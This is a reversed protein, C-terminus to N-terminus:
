RPYRRVVDGWEYAEEEDYDYDYDYTPRDREFRSLDDATYPEASADFGEWGQERWHAVRQDMDVPNFSRLIHAARDADTDFVNVSVLASGRRLSEAYYEVEEEPVGLNILSATINGTAAGAAAGIAGGTAAGLAAALPGAAIIPGVGPITIAGLGVVAGVLLGVTGGFGTGESASVDKGDGVYQAYADDRDYVALGIDSRDFGAEVLENIADNADEVSDYTALITSTM